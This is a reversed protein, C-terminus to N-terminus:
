GVGRRSDKAARAWPGNDEQLPGRAVCACYRPPALPLPPRLFSAGGSGGNSLLSPALSRALSAPGGEGPERGEGKGEGGGAGLSFRPAASPPLLPPPPLGRPLTQGAGRRRLRQRRRQRRQLLLLLVHRRPRRGRQRSGPPRSRASPAWSSSINAIQRYFHRFSVEFQYVRM